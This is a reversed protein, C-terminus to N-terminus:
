EALATPPRKNKRWRISLLISGLAMCVILLMALWGAFPIMFVLKLLIFVGLAAFSVHWNNWGKGYFNNIRNAVVTASIVTALLVIIVFAILLLLGVPVGILTIFAVVAAVPLGIVLSLGLGFSKVPHASSADAAKKMTSSFLYQIILIMLFATGIYWLFALFSTMGLYYWQSERIRLSPDYVAKGNRIHKSFDMEGRATWYRIDNLFSANNGLNISQAALISRGRISGNLTMNGARCDFDRGVDGNLVLKGFGGKVNGLVNGHVRADGGAGLIAGVTVSRDIIINGGTIVLDGRVDRSIRINGGACRIDDGVQGNFTIDGGAVLIDGSISDNIVITGGAVVLDGYIPANITINGGAVYLDEYVPQNIVVHSGYELRFAFASFMNGVLLLLMIIKRM